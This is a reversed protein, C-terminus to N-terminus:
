EGFGQLIRVSSVLCWCDIVIDHRSDFSNAAALLVVTPLSTMLLCVIL